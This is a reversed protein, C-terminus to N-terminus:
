TSDLLVHHLSGEVAAVSGAVRFDSEGMWIWFWSRMVLKWMLDGQDEEIALRPVTSLM